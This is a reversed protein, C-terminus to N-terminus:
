SASTLSKIQFACFMLMLCQLLNQCINRLHRDKVYLTGTNGRDIDIAVDMSVFSSNEEIPPICVKGIGDHYM